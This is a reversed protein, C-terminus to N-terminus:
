IRFYAQPSPFSTSGVGEALSSPGSVMMRRWRDFLPERRGSIAFCLGPFRQEVLGECAEMISDGRKEQV